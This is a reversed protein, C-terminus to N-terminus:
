LTSRSAIVVYIRSPFSSCCKRPPWPPRAWPLLSVTAWEPSPKSSVPAGRPTAWCIASNTSQPILGTSMASVTDPWLKERLTRRSVVHGARELLLELIQFPKEELRIRMGHKRLERTDLNVEFTGFRVVPAAIQVDNM